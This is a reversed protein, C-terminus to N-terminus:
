EKMIMVLRVGRIQKFTVGQSIFRFAELPDVVM